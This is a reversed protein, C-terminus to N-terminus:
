QHNINGGSSSKIRTQEPNGRYSINGGSSAHADIKNTVSLEINAGSSASVKSSSSTLDRARINGGSSAEADFYECEGTLKINGGSSADSNITKANVEANIEGASSADMDLHDSEIITEAYINSGSSAKLRSIEKVNVYVNLKSSHRISRNPYCKLVSGDVETSICEQLNEDTEVVVKEDDGQFVYVNIGASSKIGSFSAVEREQKIVNGNGKVFDMWNCAALSLIAIFTLLSLGLFTIKKM